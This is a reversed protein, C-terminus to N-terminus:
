EAPDLETEKVAPGSGMSGCYTEDVDCILMSGPAHTICFPIKARIIAAQPTVGCGWFVPVEDPLIDIAEGWDPKQIDSVGIEEPNGVHVPLGHSLPFGDCIKMVQDLYTKKIPRMSVVMGGHFPGRAETEINTRFMPVTKNLEMHRMAIGARLLAHEFTFSCGIAFVTFDDQWLDTINSVQQDMQGNRYIFYQPIDTRIDINSGLEPLHPDGLKSVGALPCPKPNALCYERFDDAWQNPLIALNCQLHGPVLGSTHDCYQGNRIINRVEELGAQKLTSYEIKSVNTM